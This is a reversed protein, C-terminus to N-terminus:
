YLSSFISDTAVHFPVTGSKSAAAAQMKSILPSEAIAAFPEPSPEVAICRCGFRATIAQAFRGYNAGLDLVQSRASLYRPHVTHDYIAELMAASEVLCPAEVSISQRPRSSRSLYIPELM